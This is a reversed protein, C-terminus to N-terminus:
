AAHWMQTRSSRTSVDAEEALLAIGFSGRLRLDKTSAAVKRDGLPSDVYLYPVSRSRRAHASHTAAPYKCRGM